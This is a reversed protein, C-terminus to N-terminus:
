PDVRVLGRKGSGARKRHEAYAAIRAHDPWPALFGVLVADRRIRRFDWGDEEMSPGRVRLVMDAEGLAAAIDASMAAGADRFMADPYGARDGAGSEVVVEFGLERLRKVADPSGAIRTELPHREKPIVLKM